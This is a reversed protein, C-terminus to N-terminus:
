DVSIISVTLNSMNWVNDPYGDGSDGCAWIRSGDWALDTALATGGPLVFSWDLLGGSSDIGIVEDRIEGRSGGGPELSTEPIFFLRKSLLHQGDWGLVGIGNGNLEPSISGIVSMTGGHSVTALMSLCILVCLCAFVFPKKMLAQELFVSTVLVCDSVPPSWLPSM